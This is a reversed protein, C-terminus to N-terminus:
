PSHRSTFFDTLCKRDFLAISQFLYDIRWSCFFFFFSLYKEMRMIDDAMRWGGDAMRYDYERVGIQLDRM